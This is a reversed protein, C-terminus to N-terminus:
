ALRRIQDCDRRRREGACKRDINRSRSRRGRRNIFQLAWEFMSMSAPQPKGNRRKPKVPGEAMFEVLPFLSQQVEDSEGGNSITGENDSGTHVHERNAVPILGGKEFRGM